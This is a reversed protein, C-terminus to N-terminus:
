TLGPRRKPWHHWALEGIVGPPEADPAITTAGFSWHFRSGPEPSNENNVRLTLRDGASIAVNALDSGSTALDAVTVELSTVAQNRLLTHIYAAGTSPAASREVYLRTLWFDTLGAPATHMDILAGDQRSQNWKWTTSDSPIDDNNGGVLMFDDPTTPLFAGGVAIGQVGTSGSRLVLTDVHDGVVVPLDFTAITTSSGSDNIVCSTDVTGGTGDQTVGNVRYWATWAGGSEVGYRQLVLHTLSGDVGVISYTNSRGGGSYVEFVGNGLAGGFWGTGAPVSGGVVSIGFVQHTGEWEYTAGMDFGPNAVAHDKGIEWFLWDGSNVSVTSLPNSAQTAPYPLTASLATAISNVKLTVAVDESANTSRLVLKRITGPIPVPHVGFSLAAVGNGDAFGFYEIPGGYGVYNLARLIPVKV